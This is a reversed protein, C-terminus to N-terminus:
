LPIKVRTKPPGQYEPTVEKGKDDKIVGMRRLKEEQICGLIYSGVVWLVVFGALYMLVRAVEGREADRPKSCLLQM